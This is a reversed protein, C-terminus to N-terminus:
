NIAIISILMCQQQFLGLNFPTQVRTLYQKITLHMLFLTNHPELLQYVVIHAFIRVIIIAVTVSKSLPDFKTCSCTLILLKHLLNQAFQLFM